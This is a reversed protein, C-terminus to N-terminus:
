NQNIPTPRVDVNPLFDAEALFGETLLNLVEVDRGREGLTTRPGFHTEQELFLM